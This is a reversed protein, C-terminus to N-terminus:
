VKRNIKFKELSEEVAFAHTTTIKRELEKIIKEHKTLDEKKLIKDKLSMIETKFNDSYKYYYDGLLVLKDEGDSQITSIDIGDGSTGSMLGISTILQKM